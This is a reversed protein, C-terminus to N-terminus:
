NQVARIKFTYTGPTTPTGTILGTASDLTMGPPLSGSVLTFTLGSTSAGTPANQWLTARGRLDLSYPQGSRAAAPPTADITVGCQGWRPEMEATMRMSRPLTVSGFGGLGFGFGNKLRTEIEEIQTSTKTMQRLRAPPANVQRMCWGDLTQDFQVADEFAGTLNTVNRTRMGWNSIDPDNLLVAGKFAYSLDTVTEPFDAPVDTLREAGKFAGALSQLGVNGFRTVRTIRDANAYGTDGNGFQTVTGSVRVQFPGAGDGAPYTCSVEGPTTVARTCGANAGEAGWDIVADVTGFLPLTITTQASVAPAALVASALLAAKLSGSFLTKINVV